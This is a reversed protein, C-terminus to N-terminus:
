ASLVVRGPSAVFDQLYKEFEVVLNSLVLNSNVVEDLNM